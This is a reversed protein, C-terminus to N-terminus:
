PGGTGKSATAGKGTGDGKGAGFEPTDWRTSEDEDGCAIAGPYVGSFSANGMSLVCLADFGAASLVVRHGRSDASLATASIGDHLTVDAAALASALDTTYTGREAYHIEQATAVDKATMKLASYMSDREVGALRPASASGRTWFPAPATRDTAELQYSRVYHVDFDGRWRGVIEESGIWLPDFRAPLEVIGTATGEASVRIWLAPDDVGGPDERVWLGGAEATRALRVGAGDTPFSMGSVTAEARARVQPDLVGEVIVRGWVVAGLPFRDDGHVEEGRMEDLYSGDTRLRTITRDAEDGVWLTDGRLLTVGPSRFEGPGDGSRGLAAVREGSRDFVLLTSAARDVVILRDKGLPEVDAVLDLTQVGGGELEGIELRPTGVIQVPLLEDASPRSRRDLDDPDGGCATMGVVLCLLVGRRCWPPRVPHERSDTSPSWPRGPPRM